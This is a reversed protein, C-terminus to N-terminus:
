LKKERIISIFIFALVLLAILFGFMSFMPLGATPKQFPLMITSAVFLTGALFGLTLRNSSRDMEVALVNIDRDIRRLDRSTDHLDTLVATAKRPLSEAFELMAAVKRKARHAIEKPQMRKRALKTVFPKAVEVFNLKPDMQKALGELTVVAKALLVFNPHVKLNNQRFIMILDNLAKSININELTTGYYQSLKDYVEARIGELDAQESAVGLKVAVDVMGQVDQNIMCIFFETMNEKLVYDLRGVIGFDLLAIKGNSKILFNGPHPDAHFVGHEFVQTFQAEILTQIIRKRTAPQFKSLDTLRRGPIYEMTLVRSTTHTWFVKPIIITGSGAFNAHFLDINHAEKLYNLENDTYREFERVIEVPNIMRSGYKRAVIGALRYLLKTDVKVVRQIDPRQVKVAVKAGNKLKALHVQGMSAAAVPTENFEAFLKRIPKKLEKEVIEKAEKGSFPPVKDQLKALEECYASPILDPRLALLQGLKIFTGDIEKFMKLVLEPTLQKEDHGRAEVRRHFPLKRRLGIRILVPGLGNDTLVHAIQKLRASEDSSPWFTM